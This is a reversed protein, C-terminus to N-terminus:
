VPIEATPHTAEGRTNASPLNPVKIHPLPRIFSLAATPM